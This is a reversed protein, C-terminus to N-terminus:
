MRTVILIMKTVVAHRAAVPRIVHAQNRGGREGCQPLRLVFPCQEVHAFGGLDVGTVNGFGCRQRPPHDFQLERLEHLPGRCRDHEVIVATLSGGQGGGRDLFQPVLVNGNEVAARSCPGGSAGRQDFAFVHRALRKGFCHELVLANRLHGSLFQSRFARASCREDQAVYACRFLMCDTVHGAGVVHGAHLDSCDRLIQDLARHRDDHM